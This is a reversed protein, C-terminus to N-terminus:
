LHMIEVNEWHGRMREAVLRRHCHAASAEFCLLCCVQKEFLDKELSVPINREDMLKTFRAVYLDKDPHRHFDDLIFETPALQLMHTYTIGSVEKLLYPLDRKSAFGADDSDPYIRIDVVREVGHTKLLEFFRQASKGEFGITYLKM